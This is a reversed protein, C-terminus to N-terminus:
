ACGDHYVDYLVSLAITVIDGYAYNYCQTRYAEPVMNCLKRGEDNQYFRHLRASFEEWCLKEVGRDIVPKSSCFAHAAEYEARPRGHEFLGSVISQACMGVYADNLESCQAFIDDQGNVGVVHQVMGAIGVRFGTDRFRAISVTKLVKALNRPDYDAVRDLKMSMEYYCAFKRREPQTNCIAFPHKDDYSFGYEKTEMWDVLVNFVGQRCEDTEYSTAKSLAECIDLPKDIFVTAKGWEANPIDGAKALAIGHGSGHYCTARIDGMTSGLRQHLYTCTTDIFKPNANDQVLHELFGHYFGYGCSTTEPPFDIKTLDNFALYHEYYVMDGVRHAHRHCGSNAFFPYADYIQRFTKMAPALGNNQLEGRIVDMWCEIKSDDDSHVLDCDQATREVSTGIFFYVVGMSVIVVFMTVFPALRAHPFIM